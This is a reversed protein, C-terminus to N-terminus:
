KLQKEEINLYSARNSRLILFANNFITIYTEDIFSKLIM